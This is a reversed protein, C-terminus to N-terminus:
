DGLCGTSRLDAARVCVLRRRQCAVRRRSSNNGFCLKGSRPASVGDPMRWCLYVRGPHRLLPRSFPRNGPRWRQAATAGGAAPHHAALLAYRFEVSPKTSGFNRTGGCGCVQDDHMVVFPVRQCSSIACRSSGTPHCPSSDVSHRRRSDSRQGTHGRGPERDHQENTATSTM